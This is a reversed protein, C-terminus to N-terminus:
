QPQEIAGLRMALAVGCRGALGLGLIGTAISWDHAAVIAFAVAVLGLVLGVALLVLKLDIPSRM